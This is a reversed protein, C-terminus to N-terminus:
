RVVFITFSQFFDSYLKGNEGLSRNNTADTFFTPVRKKRKEKSYILKLRQALLRKMADEISNIDVHSKWNESNM